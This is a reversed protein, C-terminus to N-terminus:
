KNHNIVIIKHETVHVQGAEKSSRNYLHKQDLQSINTCSSGDWRYGWSCLCDFSGMTNQCIMHSPCNHLGEYCEDQDICYRLKKDWVFGEKIQQCSCSYNFDNRILHLFNVNKGQDLVCRSNPLSSCPNSSDTNLDDVVGNTNGGYCPDPCFSLEACLFPRKNKILRIDFIPPWAKNEVVHPIMNEDKWFINFHLCKFGFKNNYDLRRLITIHQMTYWCMYYSATTLYEFQELKSFTSLKSRRRFNHFQSIEDICASVSSECANRVVPHMVPPIPFQRNLKSTCYRHRGTNCIPILSMPIACGVDTNCMPIPFMPLVCRYQVALMLIASRYQPCRYQVDTNCMPIPSMPIARGVDTNCM